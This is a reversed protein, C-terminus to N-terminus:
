RRRLRDALAKKTFWTVQNQVNTYGLAADDKRVEGTFPATGGLALEKLQLWAASTDRTGAKEIAGDIAPDLINRRLKRSVGTAPAASPTQVTVAQSDPFRFMIKPENQALWTNLDNWYAEYHDAHAFSIHGDRIHSDKFRHVQHRGPGYMPLARSAAAATLKELFEDDREGTAASIAKAADALTYRGAAEKEVRQHERETKQSREVADSIVQAIHQNGDETLYWQAPNTRILSVDTCPLDNFASYARIRGSEIEGVIFDIAGPIGDFHWGHLAVAAVITRRLDPDAGRQWKEPHRDAAAESIRSALDQIIVNM